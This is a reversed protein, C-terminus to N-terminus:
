APTGPRVAGHDFVRDQVEPGLPADEDSHIRIGRAVYPVSLAFQSPTVLDWFRTLDETTLDTFALQVDEDPAFTDAVLQNLLPARLIPNDELARMAVALLHQQTTPDGAWATLLFHLSLPLEPMRQRGSGDGRIRGPPTRDAEDVFVRYLALSIGLAPINTPSRTDLVPFLASAPFRNTARVASEVVTLVARCTVDIAEATAM